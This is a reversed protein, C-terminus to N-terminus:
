RGRDDLRLRRRRIRVSAEIAASPEATEVRLTWALYAEEPDLDGLAPLRSLDAEVQVRGVRMLQRIILLPENASKFLGSRPM